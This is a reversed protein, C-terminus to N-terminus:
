IQLWMIETAISSILPSILSIGHVNQKTGRVLSYLFDYSALLAQFFDKLHLVTLNSVYLGIAFWTRLTGRSVKVWFSLSNGPITAFVLDRNNLDSFHCQFTQIKVYKFSLWSLIMTQHRRKNGEKWFKSAERYTVSGVLVHM